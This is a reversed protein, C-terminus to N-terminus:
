LFQVIHGFFQVSISIRQDKKRYTAFIFSIINQARKPRLFSVLRHCFLAIAMKFRCFYFSFFIPKAKSERVIRRYKTSEFVNKLSLVQITTSKLLIFKFIPRFNSTFNAVCFTVQIVSETFVAFTFCYCIFFFM